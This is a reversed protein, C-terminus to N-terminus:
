LNDLFCSKGTDATATLGTWTLVVQTDSTAAGRSLAPATTPVSKATAGAVNITNYDSMGNANIAAVQVEILDDLLLGYTTTFVSM